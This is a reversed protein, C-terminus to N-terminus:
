RAKLKIGSPTPSKGREAQQKTVGANRGHIFLLLILGKILNKAGLFYNIKRSMEQRGITPPATILGHERRSAPGVRVYLKQFIKFKTISASQANHCHM